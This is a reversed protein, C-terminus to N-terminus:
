SLLISYSLLITLYYSLLITLYYLTYTLFTTRGRATTDVRKQTGTQTWGWFDVPRSGSSLTRFGDPLRGTPPRTGSSKRVNRTQSGPPCVEPPRDSLWTRGDRRHANVVSGCRFMFRFRSVLVEITSHFDSSRTRYM